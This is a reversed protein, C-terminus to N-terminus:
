PHIDLGQPEPTPPRLTVDATPAVPTERIAQVDDERPKVAARLSRHRKHTTSATTTHHKKRSASTRRVPKVSKSDERSSDKSFGEDRRTSSGAQQDDFYDGIEYRSFVDPTVMQSHVHGQEDRLLFSYIADVGASYAFPSPKLRKEVVTGKQACGALLLAAILATYIQPRMAFDDRCAAFLVTTLTKHALRWYNKNSKM